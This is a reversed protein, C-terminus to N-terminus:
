YYLAWENNSIFDDVVEKMAYNPILMDQTLKTRTVPDFHGVRELHETIDKRDYTIGSPTIVPDKLLEFSIKGCLYDPVERRSRREDVKAFLANVEAVHKDAEVEIKSMVKTEDENPEDVKMSALQRDRDELILRNIYTQLDIEQQIRKEEQANWKKKKALRIKSSITDDYYSGPDKKTFEYATQLHLIAEDVKDLELLATGLYFHGKVLTSDRELAARSDQVALQFKNNKIYCLARNTYYTPIGPNLTIAKSYCDIASDYKCANFYKNGQEKLDKDSQRSSSSMKSKTSM